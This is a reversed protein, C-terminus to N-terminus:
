RIRAVITDAGIMVDNKIGDFGGVESGASNAAIGVHAHGAHTASSHSMWPTMAAFSVAMLVALAFRFKLHYSM